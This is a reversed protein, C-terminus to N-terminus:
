SSRPARLLARRTSRTAEVLWRRRVVYRAAHMYTWKIWGAEVRLQRSRAERQQPPVWDFVLHRFLTYDRKAKVLAALEPYRAAAIALVMLSEELGVRNSEDSRSTQRDHVRYRGLVDPLSAWRLRSTVMCDIEHLWENYMPLRLDFRHPGVAAARFMHSSPISKIERGFLWNTTFMVEHGGDKRAFRDNLRYLTAGTRSDFVDMDHTCVGCDPHSQLFAVQRAIKQPLMVDDGSLTAVFEGTCRDMARNWNASMGLNEPAYLAVVRSDEAAIRRIIDATRDRSGDDAVVLELRRYTQGLVSRLTQEIYDEHTFSTVLVSVLPETM